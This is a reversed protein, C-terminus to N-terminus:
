VGSRSVVHARRLSAGRSVVPYVGTLHAVAQHPNLGAQEGPLQHGPTLQHRRLGTLSVQLHAGQSGGAVRPLAPPLVEIELSTFAPLQLPAARASRTCCEDGALGEEQDSGLSKCARRTDLTGRLPMGARGASRGQSVAHRCSSEGTPLFPPVYRIGTVYRPHGSFLSLGEGSHRGQCLM